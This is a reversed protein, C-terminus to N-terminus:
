YGRTEAVSFINIAAAIIEGGGETLTTTRFLMKLVFKCATVGLYCM